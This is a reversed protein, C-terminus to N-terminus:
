FNDIYIIIFSLVSPIFGLTRFESTDLDGANNMIKLITAMPSVKFNQCRVESKQIRSTAAKAVDRFESGM